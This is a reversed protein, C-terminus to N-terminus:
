PCRKRTRLVVGAHSSQCRVASCVRGGDRSRGSCAAEIVPIGCASLREEVPVRISVPCRKAECTRSGCAGCVRERCSRGPARTQAHRWTQNFGHPFSARGRSPIRRPRCANYRMCPLFQTVVIYVRPRRKDIRAVPMFEVCILFLKTKIYEDSPVCKPRIRWWFDVSRSSPDFIRFGELMGRTLAYM